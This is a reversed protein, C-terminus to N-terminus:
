NRRLPGRPRERVELDRVFEMLVEHWLPGPNEVNTPRAITAQPDKPAAPVCGFIDM